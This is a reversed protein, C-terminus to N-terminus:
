PKPASAAVAAGSTGAAGSGVLVEPHITYVRDVYLYFFALSMGLVVLGIVSSTIKIPGAEFANASKHVSGDFRAVVAPWMPSDAPLSKIEKLLASFDDISRREATFQLYSFALGAVVTGVVVIFIFLNYIAQADFLRKRADLDEVVRQAIRRNRVTLAEDAAVRARSASMEAALQQIYLARDADIVDQASFRQKWMRFQAIDAEDSAQSAASLAPRAANSAGGTAPLAVAASLAAALCLGLLARIWAHHQTSM